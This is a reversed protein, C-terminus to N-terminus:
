VYCTHVINFMFLCHLITLFTQLLKKLDFQIIYDNTQLADSQQHTLTM